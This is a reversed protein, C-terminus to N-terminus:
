RVHRIVGNKPIVLPQARRIQEVSRITVGCDVCSPLAGSWKKPAVHGYNKCMRHDVIRKSSGTFGLILLSRLHGMLHMALRVFCSRGADSRGSRSLSVSVKAM